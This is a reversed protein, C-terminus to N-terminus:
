FITRVISLTDKRFNNRLNSEVDSLHHVFVVRANRIGLGWVGANHPATHKGPNGGLMDCVPSNTYEKIVFVNALNM